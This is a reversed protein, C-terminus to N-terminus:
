VTWSCRLTLKSLPTEQVVDGPVVRVETVRGVPVGWYRVPSSTDLGSVSENIYTVMDIVARSRFRHIFLLATALAVGLIIVIFFGLRAFNRVAPM